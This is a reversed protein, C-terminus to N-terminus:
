SLPFDGVPITYCHFSVNISDVFMLRELQHLQIPEVRQAPHGKLTLSTGDWNFSLTLEKYDMIVPGLTALWQADLVINAGRLPLVFLDVVLEHGDLNLAVDGCMGLCGMTDKDRHEQLQAMTLRKMLLMSSFVVMPNDIRHSPTPLLPPMSSPTPSSRPPDWTRSETGTLLAGGGSQTQWQFQEWKGDQEDLVKSHTGEAM